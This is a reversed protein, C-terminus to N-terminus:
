IKPINKINIAIIIELKGLFYIPVLYPVKTKYFFGKEVLGDDMVRVRM